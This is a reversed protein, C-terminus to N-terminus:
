CITSVSQLNLTGKEVHRVQLPSLSLKCLNLQQRAHKGGLLLQLDCVLQCEGLEPDKHFTWCGARRGGPGPKEDFLLQVRSVHIHYDFLVSMTYWQSTLHRLDVIKKNQQEVCVSIMREQAYGDAYGLTNGSIVTRYAVIWQQHTMFAIFKKQVKWMRLLYSLFSNVLECLM